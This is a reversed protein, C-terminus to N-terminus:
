SQRQRLTLRLLRAMGRIVGRSVQPSKQVLEDFTEPAIELLLSDKEAAVTAGRPEKLLYAIEGLMQGPQVEGIRELGGEGELYIGIEGSFLLFIETGQEGASFLRSGAEVHKLRDGFFRKPHALLQRDLWGKKKAEPDAFLRYLREILIQDLKELVYVFQAFFFFVVFSLHIWIILLIVSGTVGYIMSYRAVGAFRAFLEHSLLVVAACLLAGVMSNFSDPRRPPVFRYSLFVMVVTMAGPVLRQLYPMMPEAIQRILPQDAMMGLIFQVAVSVLTGVLLACVLLFLVGLSLLQIGFSSRSRELAFITRLGRHVALVARRSAWVLTLAGLLGIAATRGSLLGIRVLFDRDLNESVSRLFEFVQVSIEPYASLYRDLGIILLLFFPPVSLLLFLASAAAHNILENEDFMSASIMLKQMMARVRWWLGHPSEQSEAPFPQRDKTKEPAPNM